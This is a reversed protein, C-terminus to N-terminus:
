PAASELTGRVVGADDRGTAHSHLLYDCLAQPDRTLRLANTDLTLQAAFGDTWLVLCDGEGWVATETAPVKHPAGLIGPTGEFRMVKKAFLAARVNGLGSFALTRGASDVRVVAVAAGRSERVAPGIATIMEAPPLSRRFEAETLASEAAQAAPAGHGLGDVLCITLL